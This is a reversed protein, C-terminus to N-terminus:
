ELPNVLDQKVGLNALFIIFVFLIIQALWLSDMLELDEIVETKTVNNMDTCYIVADKQLMVKTYIVVFIHIVVGPLLCCWGACSRFFMIVGGFCSVLGGVALIIYIIWNIM